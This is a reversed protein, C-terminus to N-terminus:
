YDYWISKTNVVKRNKGYHIIEEWNKNIWNNKNIRKEINDSDIMGSYVGNM